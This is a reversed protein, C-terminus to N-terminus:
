FEIFPTSPKLEYVNLWQSNFVFLNGTKKDKFARFLKYVPKRVDLAYVLNYTEAYGCVDNSNPM